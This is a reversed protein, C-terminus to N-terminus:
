LENTPIATTFFLKKSILFRIRKTEGEGGGETSRDNKYDCYRQRVTSLRTTASKKQRRYRFFTVRFPGRGIHSPRGSPFSRDVTKRYMSKRTSVAYRYFLMSILFNLFNSSKFIINLIWLLVYVNSIYFFIIKVNIINNVRLTNEKLNNRTYTNSTEVSTTM